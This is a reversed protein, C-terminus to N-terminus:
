VLKDLLVYMVKFNDYFMVKFKCFDKSLGGEVMYIVFIWFSGFFGILLVCGNLECCIICVVDMVYGLDQELDFVLLVEIDVLLLVVKCFCLGEGIEFYLGQGMVDFIILIDFFFIVVDLQLYCDLLQLIVECVLELNMCLSMFDGVKVCIVCYELLYCGVQCMMWVFIVDVFQKFLVCFFCDNKLVIM